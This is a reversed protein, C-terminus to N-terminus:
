RAAVPIGGAAAVAFEHDDKHKKVVYRNGKTRYLGQWTASTTARWYVDYEAAEDGRWTLTTDLSQRRDIRVNTPAEGAMGLSAMMRLNVRAASAMLGPDVFKPVDDATHQRSYEEHVEVFRVGTFGERNFPTHDGGRGFRDARFVMKVGFGDRASRQTFEIWRALERGNHTDSEESFVRINRRDSGASNAVNGVMDNNLVAELRWNESKARKALATSGILGQEEGTFAVFVFTNRWKRQSLVRAMELSLAVGSADDNAGPAKADIGAGQSMNITDLHGGVLIRRDTEGPLTAVVQVAERAVPVRGGRPLPYRMLEVRVGPIKRFESAMYEAAEDCTSNNTNRNPWECLREVTAKMRKGDVQRILDDITPPPSIALLLSLM